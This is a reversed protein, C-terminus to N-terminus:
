LAFGSINFVVYSMTMTGFFCTGAYPLSALEHRLEALFSPFVVALIVLNSTQTDNFIKSMQAAPQSVTCAYVRAHLLRDLAACRSVTCESVSAHLLGHM